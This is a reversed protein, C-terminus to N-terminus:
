KMKVKPKITEQFLVVSLYILFPNAMVRFFYSEMFGYLILLLFILFMKINKKQYAISLCKTIGLALMTFIGTGYKILIHFYSNDIGSTQATVVKNGFFLIDYRSAFESIWYVRRNLLGDIKAGLGSSVQYIAWCCFTIFALVFFSYTLIKVINKHNKFVKEIIPYFINFMFLILIVAMSSKSDACISVILTAVIFIVSDIIVNKKGKPYKQLYFYELCLIMVHCGFSNPHYFGMSNRITGDPRHLIRNETVGCFYLLVVCGFLTLRLLFDKKIFDNFKMYQMAFIIIWLRMM